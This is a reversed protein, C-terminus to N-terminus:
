DEKPGGEYADKEKEWVPRPLQFGEGVRGYTIGGMRSIPRLKAADVTLHKSSRDQTGPAPPPDDKILVDNRVHVLKILGLVLM